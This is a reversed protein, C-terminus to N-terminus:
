VVPVPALGAATGDDVWDIWRGHAHTWALPRTQRRGDHWTALGLLTAGQGPSGAPDRTPREVWPAISPYEATICALERHRGIEDLQEGMARRGDHDLYALAWSFLVCVLADPDGLDDVVPGLLDLGNGRRLEPPHAAAVAL